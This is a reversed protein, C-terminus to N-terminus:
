HTIHCLLLALTNDGLYIHSQCETNDFLLGCKKVFHAHRVLPTNYPVHLPLALLGFLYTIPVRHQRIIFWM